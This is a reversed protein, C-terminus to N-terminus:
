YNTILRMASLQSTKYMVTHNTVKNDSSPSTTVSWFLSSTMSVAHNIKISNIYMYLIITALFFSM